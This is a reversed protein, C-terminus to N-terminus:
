RLTVILMLAIVASTGVLTWGVARLRAPPPPSAAIWTAVVIGPMTSLLPRLPMVGAAVALAVSAVIIGALVFVARRTVAVQLPDGGGRVRLIIVRVALTALVFNSGFAVAVAVGAVPSRGGLACLPVAALSFAIAVALEASLTKGKGSAAAWFLYAAPVLPLVLLIRRSPPMWRLTIAGCVALVATLLVLWWIAARREDRRARAGRFGLVVLMPEHALFGALIAVSFVLSAGNVGTVLWSTLLPFAMQGYAGHEKPYLAM